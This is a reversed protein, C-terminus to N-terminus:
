TRARTRRWERSPTLICDCRIDHPEAPLDDVLQEDYAVGCRFGKL